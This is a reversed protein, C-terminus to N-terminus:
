ADEGEGTARVRLWALLGMILAAHGPATLSRADHGLADVAVRGAGERRVWAVPQAGEGVDGNALVTCDTSPDLRHYVEDVLAFHSPGNSYRRGEATLEVVADGLPPHYSREWSWGGGMLRIWDPQTDWCITGTHMVLLAGGRVVFNRLAAMHTDPLVYAWRERHPAYREYQTMGWYLANVVLLDVEALRAIAADIDEEVVLAFGSMEAYGSLVSTTEAFPHSYGGSYILASPKARM